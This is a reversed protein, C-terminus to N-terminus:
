NPEAHWVSMLGDLTLPESLYTKKALTSLLHPLLGEDEGYSVARLPLARSVRHTEALWDRAEAVSGLADVLGLEVASKGVYIRGDALESAKEPALGRRDAVLGVFWEHVENIVEQVSQRAKDSLPQLPSPEGKLEASRIAETRIGLNDLLETIETLQLIVGISGTISSVGAVIHDAGLAAMYGGSTGITGIVAVVPKAEGVYRLSEYLRESGYTTGGPSNISVILAEVSSDDRLRRIAEDRDEDETVVGTVDLTAVHSSDLAQDFRTFVAVAAGIAVVVAIIRWLLLRRKLRRRDVLTDADVPM